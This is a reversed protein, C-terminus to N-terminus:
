GSIARRVEPRGRPRKPLGPPRYGRRREEIAYQFGLEWYDVAARFDTLGSTSDEWAFVWAEAHLRPLGARVLREIVVTRRTAFAREQRTTPLRTPLRPAPETIMDIAM